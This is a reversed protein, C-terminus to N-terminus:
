SKFIYAPLFSSFITTMIILRYDKQSEIIFNPYTYCVLQFYTLYHFFMKFAFNFHTKFDFYNTLYDSNFQFFIFPIFLFHLSISFYKIQIFPFYTTFNLIFWCYIIFFPSRLMVHNM